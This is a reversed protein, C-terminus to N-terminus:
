RRRRLAALRVVRAAAVEITLGPDGGCAAVLEVLRQSATRGGHRRGWALSLGRTGESTHGEVAAAAEAPAQDRLRRGLSRIEGWQARGVGFALMEGAWTDATTSVRDVAELEAIRAELWRGTADKPLEEMDPPAVVSAPPASFWGSPPETLLAPWFRVQGLGDQRWAGVAADLDPRPADPATRELVFVSGAEWVQRELDHRRRFGNFPSYRRTGVFSREPLWRWGPMGLLRPDLDATPLGHDPDILALDSLCLVAIQDVDPSRSPLLEPWPDVKDVRVAGFEASRSRGLYVRGGLLAHEIRALHEAMDDDADIRAVFVQGRRLAEIGYLLGEQPRGEADIATRMSYSTTPRHLTLARDLFGDRLQKVQGPPDTALRNFVSAALTGGEEWRDGKPAHLAFPVPVSPAGGAGVPLGDGFRVRGSDFVEFADRVSLSRYLKSAVAGRLQSGLMRRVCRHAGVTAGIESIAVDGELELSLYLSKM